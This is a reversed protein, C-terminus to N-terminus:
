KIQERAEVKQLKTFYDEVKKNFVAGPSKISSDQEIESAFEGFKYAPLGSKYAKFYTTYFAMNNYPELRKWTEWAVYEDGNSPYFFNPDTQKSQLQM